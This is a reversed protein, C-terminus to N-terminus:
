TDSAFNYAPWPGTLELRFGAPAHEDALREATARFEAFRAREVLFAFKALTDGHESAEDKLVRLRAAAASAQGLACGRRGGRSWASATRARSISRGSACPWARRAGHSTNAWASTGCRVCPRGRRTRSGRRCLRKAM